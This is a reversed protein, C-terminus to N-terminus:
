YIYIYISKTRSISLLHVQTLVVWLPHELILVVVCCCEMTNCFLSPGGVHLEKEELASPGGRWLCMMQKLNVLCATVYACMLIFHFHLHEIM